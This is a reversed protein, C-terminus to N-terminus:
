LRIMVLTGLGLSAKQKLANAKIANYVVNYVIMILMNNFCPKM